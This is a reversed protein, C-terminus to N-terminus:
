WIEGRDYPADVLVQVQVRKAASKLDATDAMGGYIRLPTEIFSLTAAATPNSGVDFENVALHMVTM